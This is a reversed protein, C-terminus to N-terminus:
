YLKEHITATVSTGTKSTKTATGASWGIGATGNLLETRADMAASAAREILRENEIFINYFEADIDIGCLNLGTYDADHKKNNIEVTVKLM